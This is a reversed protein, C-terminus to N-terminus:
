GQRLYRSRADFDEYISSVFNTLVAGASTRAGVPALADAFVTIVIVNFMNEEM